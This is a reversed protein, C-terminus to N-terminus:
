SEGPKEAPIIRPPVFIRAGVGSRNPRRIHSLLNEVLKEAIINLNLDFTAPRPNLNMLVDEDNDCAIIDIDKMPRIGRRQLASYVCRVAHDNSVHLGTPRKDSPLALIDEIVADIVDEQPIGKSDNASTIYEDAPIGKHRARRVLASGTIEFGYHEAAHNLYGIRRHGRDILYDAAMQGRIEYDPAVWDWCSCADPSLYVGVANGGMMDKIIQPNSPLGMIIVGDLRDARVTAPLQDANTVQHVSMLIGHRGLYEVLHSMLQMNLRHKIMFVPLNFLLLGVTHDIHYDPLIVKKQKDAYGLRSAIAKIKKLTHVSVDGKGQLARHVTTVAVEAEDAIDQLTVKKFTEFKMKAGVKM